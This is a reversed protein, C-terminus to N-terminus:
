LDVKRHSMLLKKNLLYRMLLESICKWNDKCLIQEILQQGQLAIITEHYSERLIMRKKSCTLFRVAEDPRRKMAVKKCYDGLSQSGGM